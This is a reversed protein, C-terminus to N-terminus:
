GPLPGESWIELGILILIAGGVIGARGALRAGFRRGLGAGAACLAFTVGGIVMSAAMARRFGWGALTFGVSMADVSTAVGQALLTGIGPEGAAEAEGGVIGEWMMRAGLITLIGLAMWPIFPRMARFLALMTRVCLWGLMPMLWQFLAFVGAMTLVRRRTMDARRLGNAVSVSFADMGLGVGLAASDLLFTPM